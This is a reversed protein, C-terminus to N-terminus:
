FHTKFYINNLLIEIALYYEVAKLQYHCLIYKLYFFFDTYDLAFFIVELTGFRNNQTNEVPGAM